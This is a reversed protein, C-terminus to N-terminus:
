NVFLYSVYNLRLMLKGFIHYTRRAFGCLLRRMLANQDSGKNVHIQNNKNTLIKSNNYIVIYNNNIKEPLNLLILFSRNSIPWPSSLSLYSTYYQKM